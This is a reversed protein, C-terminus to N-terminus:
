IKGNRDGILVSIYAAIPKIQELFYEGVRQRLRRINELAIHQPTEFSQFDASIRIGLQLANEIERQLEAQQCPFEPFKKNIENTLEYFRCIRVRPMQQYISLFSFIAVLADALDGNIGVLKNWPKFRSNELQPM